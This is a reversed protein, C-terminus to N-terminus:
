SEMLGVIGAIIIALIGLGIIVFCVTLVVKETKTWVTGAASEVRTWEAAAQAPPVGNALLQELGRALATMLDAYVPMDKNRYPMISAAITVRGRDYQLKVAQPLRNVKRTNPNKKGRAAELSSPSGPGLRFGLQMLFGGALKM